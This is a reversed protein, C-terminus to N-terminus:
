FLPRVPRTREAEHALVAHGAATFVSIIGASPNRQCRRGAPHRLRRRRCRWAPAVMLSAATLLFAATTTDPAPPFRHSPLALASGVARPRWSGWGFRDWGSGPLYVPLLVAVFGDGFARAVGRAYSRRIGRPNIPKFAGM